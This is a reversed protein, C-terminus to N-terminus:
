AFLLDARFSPLIKTISHITKLTPNTKKPDELRQYAYVSKYKLMDAVKKQAYREALRANRLLVAFAIKKDVEIKVILGEEPEFSKKPLPFSVKSSPPEDLYGNLAETLNKKLDELTDGQSMCGNLEICEGWYGGDKEEKVM